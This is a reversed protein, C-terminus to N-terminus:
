LVKLGWIRIKAWTTSLKQAPEVSLAGGELFITWMIVPDGVVEDIGLLEVTGEKYPKVSKYIWYDVKTPHPVDLCLIKGTDKFGNAFWDKPNQNRKEPRVHRSDWVTYIFADQDIDFTLSYDAGGPCDCSTKIQTLGLFEKSINTMTYQRDHFFLDGEKMEGVM